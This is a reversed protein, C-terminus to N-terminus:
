KNTIAPLYLVTSVIKTYIMSHEKFFSYFSNETDLFFGHSTVRTIITELVLHNEDIHIHKAPFQEMIEPEPESTNNPTPIDRQPKHISPTYTHHYGLDATASRGVVARISIRNGGRRIRNGTIALLKYGPRQHHRCGENRQERSKAM